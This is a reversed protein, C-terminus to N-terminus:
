WLLTMTGMATTTKFVRVGAIMAQFGAGFSLNKNIRYDLGVNLLQTKWNSEEEARAVGLQFASARAPVSERLTIIDRKHYTYIYDFYLSLADSFGDAKFSANGYWTIGPTRSINTKWPYFGQQKIVGVTPTCSPMRQDHLEKIMSVVAGGGFSTQVLKPFDFAISGEFSIGYFGNNGSDISFAKDQDKIKGTPLWAGIAVYPVMTVSLEGKDKMEWPFHWFLQMHMDELCTDRVESVDLDVEKFLKERAAPSFLYNYIKYEDNIDVADTAASVVKAPDLPALIHWGDATAVTVGFDPREKYDVIGGKMSIGFGFGFDFSVQGRLGLEEHKVNVAPFITAIKDTTLTNEDLLGRFKVGLDGPNNTGNTLFVQAAWLNPYNPQTFPKTTPTAAVTGFFLGSMNWQGLREGLPVPRGKDDRGRPAHQYFPSIYMRIEGKEKKTYFKDVGQITHFIQTDHVNNLPTAGVRSVLVVLLVVVVSLQVIFRESIKKRPFTFHPM